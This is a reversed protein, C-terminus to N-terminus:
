QAVANGTMQSQAKWFKDLDFIAFADETRLFTESGPAQWPFEEPYIIGICYSWGASILEQKKQEFGDEYKM